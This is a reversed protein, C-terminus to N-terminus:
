RELWVRRVQVSMSCYGIGFIVYHSGTVGSIDFSIELEGAGTVEVAAKTALSALNADPTNGYGLRCLTTGSTSDQSHSVVTVSARITSYSGLDVASQTAVHTRSKNPSVTTLTMSADELVADAISEGVAWGGTVDDFTDGRDFLYWVPWLNWAGNQWILARRSIWSGDVYQRVYLPCVRMTNETLANFGVASEEGTCIWVMGEAPSEPMDTRFQYGTMANGTIVAITNEVPVAPLAAESICNVVQFNLQAGTGARGFGYLFADGM